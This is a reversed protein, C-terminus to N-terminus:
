AGEVVRILRALEAEGYDWRVEVRRGKGLVLVFGGGEGAASGAPAEDVVEVRALRAAPRREVKPSAGRGERERLERLRRQYYHLTHEAIGREECYQRRTLGSNGYDRVVREM